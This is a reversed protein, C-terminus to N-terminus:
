SGLRENVADKALELGFEILALDESSPARGFQERFRELLVWELDLNPTRDDTM